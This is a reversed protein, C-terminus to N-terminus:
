KHKPTLPHLLTAGILIGLLQTWYTPNTNINLSNISYFIPQILWWFLYFTAPLQIPIFLIILPIITDIKATPFNILYAGLIGAIAGNAGIIVDPKTPNVLIQLIGTLIGCTLYLIIFRKHGLLNELNKGFVFLFLLNGVLQSFSSHLFIAKILSSSVVIVAIWNAPNFGKLVDITVMSIRAPVIGWSNIMNELQGNLDLQLEWLFFVINISILLYNIIPKRASPINDSIPIM